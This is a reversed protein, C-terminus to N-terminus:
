KKKKKKVQRKKFKELNDRLVNGVGQVFKKKEGAGAALPKRPSSSLARPDAKREKALIAKVPKRRKRAAM